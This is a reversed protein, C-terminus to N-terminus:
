MTCDDNRGDPPVHCVGSFTEVAPDFAPKRLRATPGFPSARADHASVVAPTTDIL